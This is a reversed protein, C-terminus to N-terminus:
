SKKKKVHYDFADREKKYRKDNAKKYIFGCGHKCHIEDGKRRKKTNKNESM